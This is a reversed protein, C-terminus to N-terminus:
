YLEAFRRSVVLDEREEVAAAIRAVLRADGDFASLAELVGLATDRSGDGLRAVLFAFAEDRRLLATAVALVKRRELTLEHDWADRLLAFAGEARSEGLALAVAQFHDDDPAAALAKAVLPLSGAADLALLAAVTAGVAEAHADPVGLRLRLLPVADSQGRWALGRAAEARVTHLPDALLDALVHLARPHHEQVLAFACAARLDGATDVRGGYVAEWQVHRVGPLYVAACVPPSPLEDAMARLADVIASKALCGPDSKAPGGLLRAFAAMLDDAYATSPTARIRRAAKAVALPSRDALAERVPDPSATV